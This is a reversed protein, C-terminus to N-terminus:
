EQEQKVPLKVIFESGKQPASEVIITGKHLEILEKCIILGLGTSPEGETGSRGSKNGIKFINAILKEDMGVGNDRVIIEVFDDQIKSSISVKGGKPTFKVANSVINRIVTQLMSEDAEFKLDDPIDISLEIEKKKATDMVWALNDIVSNKLEIERPIFPLAQRQMRSWHLLNELLNYLNKATCHMNEAFSKLESENFSHFDESMIQTLGLFTGFPGRLDHAIISFLKDKEINLVELENNKLLLEETQEQVKNELIEKDRQLVRERYKVFLYFLVIFISALIVYFWVTQWWPPKIRFNYAVENSKIGQSSTARVKFTYNGPSLNVYPIETVTSTKNWKRDLGELMYEYKVKNIENQTVAIFKFTIYNLKYPVGLDVPINNWRSIGSLNINKLPLGNNLMFTTDKLTHLHTWPIEENFIMLNTMQMTFPASKHLETDGHFITLRDNTGVLIEGGPLKEIAGLNCGMGIFGDEYNYSRITYTNDSPSNKIKNIGYRTGAWINGYNDQELSLVYGNNLGEETGIKTFKQGDYKIVGEGGTGFWINGENDEIISYVTNSYFGDKVTFHTFSKKDYSILGGGDTGFWVVGNSDEFISLINNSTLGSSTTFNTFHDDEFLSVGGGYTGIWIGGGSSKSVVRITNDALGQDKTYTTTRNGDFLVVGGGDTGFWIRGKRQEYISYVRTSNLGQDPGFLSHWKEGDDSDPNGIVTVYGGFTGIWILNCSDKLISMVRSNSLGDDTTLHTFVDGKYRVLGATRTGIWMNGSRDEHICRVYESGLGENLNFNTFHSGDFKYLGSRTTGIWLNGKSDEQISRISGDALGSSSDFHYFSNGDFKLIGMTSLGIWINGKRDESLATAENQPLGEATTYNTFSEGDFCSIGGLNTTIWLKGYRDMMLYRTDNDCLGNEKTYVTFNKGDYKVIGGGTALWINGSSDEEIWNVVDSPLGEDVSFIHFEQGDFKVAGGRFTGTWINGKSDYMVSLILSNSLGQETTYHYLYRGDYRTLGDDTGLWLNGTEDETMARIQDHRLGQLKGISSFNDPNKDRIYADKAEIRIPPYATVIRKPANKVLPLPVGDKGPTFVNSSSIALKVPASSKIINSQDKVKSGLRASVIIPSGAKVSAPEPIDGLNIVTGSLTRSEPLTTNNVETSKEKCATFFSLVVATLFLQRTITKLYTCTM